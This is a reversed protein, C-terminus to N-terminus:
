SEEEDQTDEHSTTTSTMSTVSATTHATAVISTAQNCALSPGRSYYVLEARMAMQLGGDLMCPVESKNAHAGCAICHCDIAVTLVNECRSTLTRQLLLKSPPLM